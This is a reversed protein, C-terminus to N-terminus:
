YRADAMRSCSGRERVARSGFLADEGRVTLTFFALKFKVARQGRALVDATRRQRRGVRPRDRAPRRLQREQTVPARSDPQGPPLLALAATSGHACVQVAGSTSRLVLREIRAAPDASGRRGRLALRGAPLRRAGRGIRQRGSGARSDCTRTPTSSGRSFASGVGSTSARWAEGGQSDARARELRDRLEPGPLHVHPRFGRAGHPRERRWRQSPRLWRGPLWQSRWCRIARPHRDAEEGRFRSNATGDYARCRESWYWRVSWERVKAASQAASLAEHRLGSSVARQSRTGRKMDRYSVFARWAHEPEDPWREWLREPAERHSTSSPRPPRIQPLGRDRCQRRTAQLERRAAVIRGRVPLRWRVVLLGGAYPGAGPDPHHSRGLRVGRRAARRRLRLGLRHQERRRRAAGAARPELQGRHLAPDIHLRAHRPRDFRAERVPQRPHGASPLRLRLPRGGAPAVHDYWGGWSDYTLVFATSSWEPSRM